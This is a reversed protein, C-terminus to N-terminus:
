TQYIINCKINIICLNNKDWILKLPSFIQVDEQMANSYINFLLYKSISFFAKIIHRSILGLSLSLVPPWPDKQGPCTLRQWGKPKLAVMLKVSTAFSDSFNSTILSVSSSSYPYQLGFIAKNNNNIPLGVERNVRMGM